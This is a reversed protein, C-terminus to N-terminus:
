YGEYQYSLIKEKVGVALFLKKVLIRKNKNSMIDVLLKWLSIFRLSPVSVETEM